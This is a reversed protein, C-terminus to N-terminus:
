RIVEAEIIDAEKWIEETGEEGLCGSDGQAEEGDEGELRRVSIRSRTRQAPLMEKSIM